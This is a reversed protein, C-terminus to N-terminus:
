VTAAPCFEASRLAVLGRAREAPVNRSAAVLLQVRVMGPPWLMALRLAITISVVAGVTVEIAGASAFGVFAALTFKVTVNLSGTLPTVAADNKRAVETPTLPADTPAGLPAPVTQVTGTLM